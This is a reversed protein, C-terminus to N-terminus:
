EVPRLKIKAEALNTPIINGCIRKLNQIAERRTNYFCKRSTMLYKFNSEGKPLFHYTYIYDYNNRGIDISIKGCWWGYINQDVVYCEKKM